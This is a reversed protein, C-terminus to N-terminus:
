HHRLVDILRAVNGKHWLVVACICVNGAVVLWSSEQYLGFVFRFPIAAYILVFVYALISIVPRHRSGCRQYLMLAIVIVSCVIANLLASPESIPM